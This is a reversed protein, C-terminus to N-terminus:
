LPSGNVSTQCNGVGDDTFMSSSEFQLIEKTLRTEPDRRVVTFLHVTFPHRRVVFQFTDPEPRTSRM